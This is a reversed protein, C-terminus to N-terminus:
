DDVPPPSPASRTRGRAGSGVVISQDVAIMKALIDLCGAPVTNNFIQMLQSTEPYVKLAKWFSFAAELYNEPDNAQTLQEGSQIQTLFYMEREERGAPFGEEKAESVLQRLQRMEAADQAQAVERQTRQYRRSERKLSQRFGPEHQRRYDFYVAYAAVGALVTGFGILLATRTEM